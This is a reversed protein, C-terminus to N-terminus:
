EALRLRRAPSSSATLANNVKCVAVKYVKLFSKPNNAQGASFFTKIVVGYAYLLFSPM